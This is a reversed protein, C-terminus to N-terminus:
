KLMVDMIRKCNSQDTYQFFDEVREIYRDEMKCGNKMYECLYFIIEEYEDIIPGFGMTEYQYVGETYQPPLEKPQYYLIPKKMYAFDFQIGSYDTLMLSSETLMKEYSIDSVAPIISLYDNKDYDEVQSSLTPHILFVLKYGYERATQLLREDNILSNYIHFYKTNKFEPNYSKATGMKNGTIVINRRWTPAILIQKKDRNVLGDYRPCGTLYLDDEKYGYIPQKLNDIEYKSACFYKKTNDALRSQYQAINQITLGHQICVIDADLLNKFFVRLNKGFGCFGFVSAHTAFITEANLVVLKNRISEFVVIHKGYEKKLAMYENATKNLIYYCDAEPHNKMCYRFLYEANDGAKYLKDYFIWIPKKSYMPKTAWYMGRLIIKKIAAKKDKSVRLLKASIGLERITVAAVTSKRVHLTEKSFTIIRDAFRYYSWHSRVLRSSTKDFCVPVTVWNNQVLIKFQIDTKKNWQKEGLQFQFSYQRYVSKGFAKTLNYDETKKYSINKGNVQVSFYDKVEPLCFGGLVEGDIILNGKSYNIAAIRARICDTAYPQDNVLYYVKKEKKVIKFKLVGHKEKLFLYSFFKPVMGRERIEILYKDEIYCLVEKVLAFFKDVEENQIVQKDRGNLNLYFRLIICYLIWRQEIETLDHSQVYPLLFKEFFPIYWKEEFQKTYSNINRELASETVIPIDHFLPISELERMSSLIIKEEFFPREDEFIEIQKLQDVRFIYRNFYLSNEQMGGTQYITNGSATICQSLVPETHGDLKVALTKIIESDLLNWEDYFVTYLADTGNLAEAYAYYREEGAEHVKVSVNDQKCIKEITVSNIDLYEKKNDVIINVTLINM